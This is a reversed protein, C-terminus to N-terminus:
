DIVIVLFKSVSWFDKASSIEISEIMKEEGKAQFSNKPHATIIRAKKGKVPISKIKTIDIKTFYDKNFDDTLKASKNFIGEKNVIGQEKLEKVTGIVYYATNLEETQKSIEEEQQEKIQQVSDMNSAMQKMKVNLNSVDINLSALQSKLSNIEGDKQEIQKNLNAVMKEFEKIKLNSRRLKKELSSLQQKNKLMLEYISLVDENIRDKANADMAADGTRIQQSVINEKEKIKSLNGEIENFSQIFGNIAEDKMQAQQALSDNTAKLRELEENTSTCAAFVLPLIMLILYKKM